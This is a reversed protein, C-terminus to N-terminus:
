IVFKSSLISVASKGPLIVGLTLVPSYALDSNTVETGSSGRYDEGFGNIERSDWNGKKHLAKKGRLSM